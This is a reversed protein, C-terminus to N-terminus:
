PRQRVLSQGSPRRMTNLMGSLAETLGPGSLGQEDHTRILRDRSWAPWNADDDDLALWDGPGRRLVDLEIQKGRPLREFVWPDMDSHWTSGIVRDKLSRSLRSRARSFGMHMAWSTSLVIRIDPHPELLRELLPAHEFLRHVGEAVIHPGRKRNRLVNEHHLVGDYDLYLVCEGRGLPPRSSWPPEQKWLSM